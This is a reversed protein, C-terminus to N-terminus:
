FVPGKSGSIPGYNPILYLEATNGYFARKDDKFRRLMDELITTIRDRDSINNKYESSWKRWHPRKHSIKHKIGEMLTEYTDKDIKRVRQDAIIYWHYQTNIPAGSNEPAKKSRQKISQFEFVWADPNVKEEKWVGNPYNWTHRGGVPMGMYKRGNFEKLDNYSM